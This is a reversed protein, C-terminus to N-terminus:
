NEATRLRFTPSTVIDLLLARVNGGSREFNLSVADALASEEDALVRMLRPLARAGHEAEGDHVRVTERHVETLRMLQRSDEETDPSLSAALTALAPTLGLPRLREFHIQIM